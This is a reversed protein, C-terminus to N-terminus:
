SGGSRCRWQGALDLRKLSRNPRRKAHGGSGHGSLTGSGGDPAFSISIGVGPEPQTPLTWDGDPTSVWLGANSANDFGPQGLRYPLASLSFQAGDGSASVRYTPPGDTAEVVETATAQHAAPAGAIRCGDSADLAHALGLEGTVAGSLTLHVEVQQAAPASAM